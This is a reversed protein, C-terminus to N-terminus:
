RSEEPGQAKRPPSVLGDMFRLYPDMHELDLVTLDYAKDYAIGAADAYGRPHLLAMATGRPYSSALLAMGTLLVGAPLRDPELVFAQLGNTLDSLNLGFDSRNAAILAVCGGGRRLAFLQRERRFGLRAYEKSLAAEGELDEGGLSLGEIMLGRGMLTSRERLAARDGAGAPELAWGAPLAAPTSRLPLSLYAFPDVSCHREDELSRAAGGFARAAFRNNPRFYCAIYRMLRPFLQHFEHIYRLMQEMVVLGARHRSSTLAAHHHLIWTAPLWRFMSVHGHIAGREQYIIHRAIRPARTYLTRYLRMFHAKQEKLRAYKEPYIFGSEFFFSWLDELDVHPTCVSTHRYVGLHLLATLRTHDRLRMTEIAFGSRLGGHPTPENYVVRASCPFEFGSAVEIRVRPVLLGPLLLARSAEEEVSFGAGSVDLARFAVKRGTLPHRFVILPLPAINPRLSRYATPIPKPKVGAATPRLALTLGGPGRDVRIAACAGAFIPTKGRTLSLDVAQGPAPHPSGSPLRVALSAASSSVLKGAASSAGWAVRAGVGRCAHRQLSRTSVDCASEPLSLRAGGADWAAAVAPIEIQSLGDTLRLHLMEWGAPRGALPPKRVWDFSVHEDLSPSPRAPVCLLSGSPVHRFTLQVEGDQFNVRNLANVLWRRSVRRRSKDAAAELLPGCAIRDPADTCRM